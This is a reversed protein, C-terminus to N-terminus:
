TLGSTLLSRDIVSIVEAGSFTCNVVHGHQCVYIFNLFEVFNFKYLLISHAFCLISDQEPFFSELQCTCFLIKIIIM